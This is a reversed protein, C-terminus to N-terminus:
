ASAPTPQPVVFRLRSESLWELPFTYRRACVAFSRSPYDIYHVDAVFFSGGEKFLFFLGAGDPIFWEAHTAVFENIQAQTLSLANLNGGLEEYIQKFTGRGDLEYVSVDEIGTPKGSKVCLGWNEFNPDIGGKYIEPSQGITLEDGTTPGLIITKGQSILRLRKIEREAAKEPPESSNILAALRDGFRPDKM